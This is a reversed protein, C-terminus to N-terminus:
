CVFLCLLLLLVLLFGFKFQKIVSVVRTGKIFHRGWDALGRGRFEIFTLPPGLPDGIGVEAVPTALTLTSAARFLNWQIVEDIQSLINIIKLLSLYSLLQWDLRNHYHWPRQELESSNLRQRDTTSRWLLAHSQQQWHGVYFYTRRFPINM